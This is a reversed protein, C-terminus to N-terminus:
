DFNPDIVINITMTMDNGNMIMIIVKDNYITKRITYHYSFLPCSALGENKVSNSPTM